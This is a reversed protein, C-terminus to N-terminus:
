HHCEPAPFGSTTEPQILTRLAAVADQGAALTALDSTAPPRGAALALTCDLIALVQRSAVLIELAWAQRQASSAEGAALEAFGIVPLMPARLASTLRALQPLAAYDAADAALPHAVLTM